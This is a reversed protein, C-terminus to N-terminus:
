SEKPNTSDTNEVTPPNTEPENRPDEDADVEESQAPDLVKGGFPFLKRLTALQRLGSEFIRDHDKERAALFTPLKSSDVDRRLGRTISDSYAEAPEEVYSSEVQAAALDFARAEIAACRSQRWDASALKRVIRLEVLDAPQMRAIFAHLHHQFAESDEGRLLPTTIAYRGHKFSNASSRDKGGPTVPGRSKAGNARSAEIQKDSRQEM